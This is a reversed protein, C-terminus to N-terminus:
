SGVERIVEPLEGFTGPVRTIELCRYLLAHLFSFSLTHELSWFFSSKLVITFHEKKNELTLMESIQLYRLNVM